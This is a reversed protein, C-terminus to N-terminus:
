RVNGGEHDSHITLYLRMLEIFKPDQYGLLKSFNASYDLNPDTDGVRGDKYVNRYIRAAVNPLKAILDNADEYVYDWYTSKHVGNQYAKAFSSEQQLATVALSFQAMPHLTNPCRDLIDEVYSPIASRAAWDQSLMKVQEKTPIEGTVLLWFLGEPLPEEGGEAAPLLKQCDPISYGHFRIGQLHIHTSTRTHAHTHMHMHTHAHTRAPLLLLLPALDHSGHDLLTAHLHCYLTGWDLRGRQGVEDADLVSSEWILGKIGRM